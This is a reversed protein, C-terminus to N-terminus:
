PEAFSTDGVIVVMVSCCTFVCLVVMYFSNCFIYLSTFSFRVMILVRIFRVHFRRWMNRLPSIKRQRFYWVQKTWLRKSDFSECSLGGYPHCCLCNSKSTSGVFIYRSYSRWDPDISAFIRFNLHMGIFQSRQDCYRQNNFVLCM